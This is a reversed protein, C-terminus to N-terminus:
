RAKKDVTYRARLEVYDALTHRWCKYKESWYALVALLDAGKGEVVAMIEYREGPIDLVTDGVRLASIQEDTLTPRSLDVGRDPEQM